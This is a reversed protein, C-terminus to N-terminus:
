GRKRALLLGDGIPVLSMSVRPDAHVKANLARIADTDPDHRGPDAVSGNWLANDVAVLGGPRLLTLCREYYGDYNSKDADIFAFDYDGAQGEKILADLTTLAPAIKLDIKHAVGAQAWYRRAVQTWEQNVDCAVIRGDPPMALAVSLSSYGTFVGIELSRRAGCLEVLLAMFQGQDPAIQMMSMPMTATEARLAALVDPERVTYQLLYDWLEDTIQLTRNSV